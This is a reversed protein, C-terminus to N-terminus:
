VFKYKKNYELMINPNRIEDLIAYNRMYKTHMIEDFIESVIFCDYMVQFM